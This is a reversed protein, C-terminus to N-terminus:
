QTRYRVLATCTQLEERAEKQEVLKAAASDTLAHLAPTLPLASSHQTHRHTCVTWSPLSDASTGEYSVLPIPLPAYGKTEQQKM